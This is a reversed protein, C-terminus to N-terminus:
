ISVTVTDTTNSVVELNRLLRSSWRYLSFQWSYLHLDRFPLYHRPLFYFNIDCIKLVFFLMPGTQRSALKAVWFTFFSTCNLVEQHGQWLFNLLNIQISRQINLYRLLPRNSSGYYLPWIVWWQLSFDYFVTRLNSFWEISSILKFTLCWRLTVIATSPIYKKSLFEM